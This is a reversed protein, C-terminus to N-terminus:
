SPHIALTGLLGKPHKLDELWAALHNIIGFNLLFLTFVIRLFESLSLEKQVIM